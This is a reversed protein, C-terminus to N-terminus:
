GNSRGIKDFGKLVPALITDKKSEWYEKDKIEAKYYEIDELMCGCATCDMLESSFKNRVEVSQTSNFYINVTRNYFTGRLYDGHEAVEREFQSCQPNICKAVVLYPENELDEAIKKDTM